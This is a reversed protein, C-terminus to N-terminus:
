GLTDKLSLLEVAMTKRVFELARSQGSISIAWAVSADLKLTDVKVDLNTEKTLWKTFEQIPFAVRQGVIAATKTKDAAKM